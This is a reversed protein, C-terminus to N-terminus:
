CSRGSSPSCSWCLPQRLPICEKHNGEGWSLSLLIQFPSGCSYMPKALRPIMGCPSLRGVKRVETLKGGQMTVTETKYDFPM